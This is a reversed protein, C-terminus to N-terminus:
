LVYIERWGGTPWFVGALTGGVLGFIGGVAADAPLALGCLFGRCNNAQSAGIGAGIGAGAVMGVALGILANRRRHENKKVSVSMIQPRSFSQPGAGQTLVLDSDTVSELMGQVPKATGAAIRIQMGPALMKVKEWRSDQSQAAVVLSFIPVLIAVRALSNAMM